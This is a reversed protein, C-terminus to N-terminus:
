LLEQGPEILRQYHCRQCNDKNRDRQHCQGAFCGAMTPRNTEVRAKDHVISRHCDLCGLGLPQGQEDRASVLHVKHNAKIVKRRDMGRELEEFPGLAAQLFEGLDLEVFRGAAAGLDGADVVLELVLGDEAEVLPLWRLGEELPRTTAAGFPDLDALEQFAARFGGLSAALASVRSGDLGLDEYSLGEQSELAAAVSAVADSVRAALTAPGPLPAPMVVDGGRDVRTDLPTLVGSTVRVVKEGEPLPALPLDQILEGSSERLEALAQALWEEPEGAEESLPRSRVAAELDSRLETLAEAWGAGRATQAARIWERDRLYRVVSAGVRGAELPAGDAALVATSVAVRREEPAVSLLAGASSRLAGKVEVAGLGTGSTRAAEHCGECRAAIREDAAFYKEPILQDRVFAGLNASEPLEAHQAHCQYCTVRDAPHGQSRTWMATLESHCTACQAPTTNITRAAWFFVAVGALALVALFGAIGGKTMQGLRKIVFM